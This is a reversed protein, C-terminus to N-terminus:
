FGYMSINTPFGYTYVILLESMFSTSSVSFSISLLGTIFPGKEGNRVDM